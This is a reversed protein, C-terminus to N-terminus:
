SEGEVADTNKSPEIILQKGKETLKGQSVLGLNVLSNLTNKKVRGGHGGTMVGNFMIMDNPYKQMLKMAAIQNKSLKMNRQTTTESIM